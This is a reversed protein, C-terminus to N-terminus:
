NAQLLLTITATIEFDDCICLQLYIYHEHTPPLALIPFFITEERGRSGQSNNNTFSFGSLFLCVLSFMKITFFKTYQSINNKGWLHVELRNKMNGSTKISVSIKISGTCAAFHFLFRNCQIKKRLIKTMKKLNNFLLRSLYPRKRM